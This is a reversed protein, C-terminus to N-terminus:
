VDMVANGKRSRQHRGAPQTKHWRTQAQARNALRAPPGSTFRYTTLFSFWCLTFTRSTHLRSDLHRGASHKAWREPVGGAHSQNLGVYWNPHHTSSFKGSRPSFCLQGTNIYRHTQLQNSIDRSWFLLLLSRVIPGSCSGQQDASRYVLMHRNVKVSQGKKIKRPLDLFASSILGQAAILGSFSSRREAGFPGFM